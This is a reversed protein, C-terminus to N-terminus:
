RTSDGTANNAQSSLNKLPHGGTSTLPVDRTSKWREVHNSISEQVESNLFCYIITVVLGQLYAADSNVLWWIPM